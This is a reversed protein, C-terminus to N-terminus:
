VTFADISRSFFGSQNGGLAAWVININGTADVAIQPASSGGPDNSLNQPSSFTLGANRSRSVFVARYGPSDDLWVLYINGNPGVAISHFFSNGASRSVNRVPFFITTDVPLPVIQAQVAIASVALLIGVLGWRLASQRYSIEQQIM